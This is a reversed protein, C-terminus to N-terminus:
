LGAVRRSRRTETTPDGSENLPSGAQRHAQELRPGHGRAALIRRAGWAQICVAVIAAYVIAKQGAAHIVLGYPSDFAPGFFLLWLYGLLLLDFAGFVALYRRPYDPTRWIAGSYAMAAVFLSLFATQVFLAHAPLFLNAPALAVGVFSLGALTGSLSGALSLVRAGRSQRFLGPMVLSFLVLGLGALTLAVVFIVFSLTNPQELPTVTRGLDSFFNHFFLYGQANPDAVTGGPYALMAVLTLAVFQICAAMVWALLQRRNFRSEREM